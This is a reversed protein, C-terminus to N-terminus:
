YCDEELRWEDGSKVAELIYGYSDNLTGDPEFVDVSYRVAASSSSFLRVAFDRPVYSLMDAGLGESTEFAVMADFSCRERFSTSHLNWVDVWAGRNSAAYLEM